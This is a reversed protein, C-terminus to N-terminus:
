KNIFNEIEPNILQIENKIEVTPAFFSENLRFKFIEEGLKNNKNEEREKLLQEIKKIQANISENAEDLAKIIEKLDSSQNEKTLENNELINKWSSLHYLAAKNFTLYNYSMTIEAKKIENSLYVLSKFHENSYLTLYEDPTLNDTDIDELLDILDQENSNTKGTFGDRSISYQNFLSELKEGDSALISNYTDYTKISNNIHIDMSNYFDLYPAMEKEFDEIQKEYNPAFLKKIFLFVGKKELFGNVVSLVNGVAAGVPHVNILSTLLGNSNTANDLGAALAEKGLKSNMEFNNEVSSRMRNIFSEGEFLETNPSIAKLMYSNAKTKEIDILAMSTNQRIYTLNYATTKVVQIDTVTESISRAKAIEEWTSQANSYTFSMVAISFLVTKMTKM